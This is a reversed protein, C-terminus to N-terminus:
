CTLMLRTVSQVSQFIPAETSDCSPVMSRRAGVLLALAAEFEEPTPVPTTDPVSPESSAPTFADRYDGPGHNEVAADPQTMLDWPGDDAHGANMERPLGRVEASVAFAACPLAKLVEDATYSLQEPESESESEKGTVEASNGSGRVSGDGPAYESASMVDGYGGRVSARWVGGVSASEDFMANFRMLGEDAEAASAVFTQRDLEAQPADKQALCFDYFRKELDNVTVDRNVAKLQAMVYDYACQLTFMDSASGGKDPHMILALRRFSRTLDAVSSDVTVGLLGYPDLM